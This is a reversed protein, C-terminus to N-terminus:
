RRVHVGSFNAFQLKTRRDVERTTGCLHGREGAFERWDGEMRGSKAAFDHPLPNPLPPIRSRQAGEGRGEGGFQDRCLRECPLTMRAILKPSLPCFSPGSVQTTRRACRPKNRETVEGACRPLDSATAAPLPGDHLM